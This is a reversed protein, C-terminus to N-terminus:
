LLGISDKLIFILCFTGIELYRVVKSKILVSDTIKINYGPERNIMLVICMNYQCLTVIMPNSDLVKARVACYVLLIVLWVNLSVKFLKYISTM